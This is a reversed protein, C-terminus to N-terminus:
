GLQSVAWFTKLFLNIWPNVQNSCFDNKQWGTKQAMAIRPTSCRGQWCTRTLDMSIEWLFNQKDNMLRIHHFYELLFPEILFFSLCLFTLIDLHVCSLTHKQISISHYCVVSDFLLPLDIQFKLVYVAKTLENRETDLMKENWVAFWICVCFM